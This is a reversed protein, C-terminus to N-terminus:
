CSINIAERTNPGVVGDIVLPTKGYNLQNLRQQLREVGLKTLPGFIGDVPGAASDPYQDLLLRNIHEQLLAVDSVIANNYSGFSGDQDGSKMNDFLIKDKACQQGKFPNSETEQKEQTSIERELGDKARAKEFLAAIASSSGRKSGGKKKAKVTVTRTITAALNGSSDTANYYVTYVGALNTDVMGSIIVICSPDYNDLCTAGQETYDNDVSISIDTGTITIEPSVTDVVNVNRIAQMAANSNSDSVHYSVTYSGVMNTNVLSSDIVLDGTIDGDELDNATAGLESYSDFVEITQPNSGILSIIPIGGTIVEVVRTIQTMNGATDTADYTRTYNGLTSTNVSGSSVVSCTIDVVDSCTAGPDTFSDNIYVQMSSSGNLVVVPATTDITITISPSHGSENGNKSDTYSINHIGESLSTSSSINQLGIATCTYSGIPTNASPHDSYLTIVNGSESCVVAFSPNTNATINDTNLSGSDSPDLLDPAVSPDAQTFSTLIPGFPGLNTPGNGVKDRCAYHLQYSGQNWNPNTITFDGDGDLLVSTNYNNSFGGTPTTTVVVSGYATDVGCSGIIDATADSNPSIPASLSGPGTPPTLDSTIHVYFRGLEPESATLNVVYQDSAGQLETFSGLTRDELLIRHGIPLATGTVSATFTIADDVPTNVGIQVSTDSIQSYPLSQIGYGVGQTPADDVVLITYVGLASLQDEGPNDPPDGFMGSDYGPNLGTTYGLGNGLAIQTTRTISGDTISIDVWSVTQAMAKDATSYFSLFTLVVVIM